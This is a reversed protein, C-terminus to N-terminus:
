LRDAIEGDLPFTAFIDLPQLSLSFRDPRVVPLEMMPKGIMFGRNKPTFDCKTASAGSEGPKPAQVM